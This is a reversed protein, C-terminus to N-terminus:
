GGHRIRILVMNRLRREFELPDIHNGTGYCVDLRWNPDPNFLVKGAQVDDIPARYGAKDFLGFVMAVWEKDFPGHCADGPVLVDNDSKMTAAKKRNVIRESSFVAPLM